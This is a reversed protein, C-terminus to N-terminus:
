YITENRELFIMHPLNAASDDKLAQAHVEEIFRKSHDLDRTKFLFLVENPDDLNQWLHELYLGQEAHNPADAELMSKIEEVKVGRLRALVHAM